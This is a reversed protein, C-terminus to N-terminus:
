NYGCKGIRFKNNSANKSSALWIIIFDLNYCNTIDFIAANKFDM